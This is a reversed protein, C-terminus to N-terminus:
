GAQSYAPLEEEGDLESLPLQEEAVVYVPRGQAERYIRGVYEAVVGLSVLQVGSMMALAASVLGMTSLTGTLIADACVGLLIGGSLLLATVGLLSVWRLPADSLACLADFALALRKIFNYKTEGALRADREYRM